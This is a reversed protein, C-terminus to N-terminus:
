SRLSPRPAPVEQHTEVRRRLWQERLAELQEYADLADRSEAVCGALEPYELRCVWEGGENERTSVDMMYPISLAHELAGDGSTRGAAQSIESM